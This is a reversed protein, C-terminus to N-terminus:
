IYDKFKERSSKKFKSDAIAKIVLVTQNGLGRLTPPSDLVCSIGDIEISVSDLFLDIYKPDTKLLVLTSSDRGAQTHVIDNIDPDWNILCKIYYRKFTVLYGVNKCIPCRGTKFYKYRLDTNGTASEYAVQKNHAEIPNRWKCRGTSSDTAKDYFCNPCEDRKIQKYVKVKRGLSDVVGRMARKFRDKTKDHIKTKTM